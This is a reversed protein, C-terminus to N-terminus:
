LMSLSYSWFQRKLCMVIVVMKIGQLLVANVSERGIGVAATWFYTFFERTLRLETTNPWCSVIDKTSRPSERALQIYKRNVVHNMYLTLLSALQHKGISHFIWHVIHLLGNNSWFPLIVILENHIMNADYIVYININLKKDVSIKNVVDLEYCTWHFHFIFLTFLISRLGMIVM